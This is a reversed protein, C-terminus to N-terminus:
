RVFAQPRMYTLSRWLREMPGFRFRALWWPSLTLQLIWVAFLILIGVVAFGRLVDLSLIRETQTTPGATGTM